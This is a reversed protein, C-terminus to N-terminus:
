PYEITLREQIKELPILEFDKSGRLKFEVNGDAFAKGGVSVRVPVGWLDADKFKVGPRENRDDLLVEYGAMQLSHYLTEAAAKSEEDKGLTCIQVQFPAVSKPWKIGWEDHHEEVISAMLRGIGMGYCGMVTPKRKGSEDLFEAGMSESFKTGLQFINGIEIGRTTELPEACKSCLCGTDAQAFDGVKIKEIDRALNFNKTHFGEENAGVVLNSNAKVSIDVLLTYDELNTNLPSAFGPVMKADIIQQPEAPTLDTTKLHNKIKIESVDLNGQVMVAILREESSYFVMKATEKTEIELLKAVDEISSANPTEVKELELHDVQHATRKFEAIETNAQFGCSRCITLYDEGNESELMFEHAVKGGMIGSDSKVVIPEIGVKNFINLYTQHARDYYADLDKQDKHFSYADKMTFERVRILGGRARAEDRYKTQFQYLTFPLQKYSTLSSRVLDTVAEEHTMALVMDHQNRDQFRLLESGIADYRQSEKWLDAVQVLPLEVEQGEIKEMEERVIREIKNIVRKGLPFLSFIGTSINKIYGGRVLFVHSPLVADSPAERLTKAFLQSVKM